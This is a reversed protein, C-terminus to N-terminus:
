QCSDGDVSVILFGIWPPLVGMAAVAGGYSTMVIPRMPTSM